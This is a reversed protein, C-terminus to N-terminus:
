SQGANLQQLILQVPVGTPTKISITKIVAAVGGSPPQTWIRALADSHHRIDPM